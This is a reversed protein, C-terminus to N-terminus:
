QKQQLLSIIIPRTKIFSWRTFEAFSTVHLPFTCRIVWLCMQNGYIDKKVTQKLHHYLIFIEERGTFLRKKIERTKFDWNGQIALSLAAHFIGHQHNKRRLNVLVTRWIIKYSYGMKLQKWMVFGDLRYVDNIKTQVLKMCKIKLGVKNRKKQQLILIVKRKMSKKPPYYISNVGRQDHNNQQNVLINQLKSIDIWGKTWALTERAVYGINYCANYKRTSKGARDIVKSWMQDIWWM